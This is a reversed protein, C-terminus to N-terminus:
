KAPEVTLPASLLRERVLRTAAAAECEGPRVIQPKRHLMDALWANTAQERKVFSQAAAIAAAAGADRAAADEEWARMAAGQRDLSAELEANADQLGGVKIECSGLDERAKTTAARADKLDGRLETVTCQRQVLVTGMAAAVIAPLVLPGGPIFALLKDIM